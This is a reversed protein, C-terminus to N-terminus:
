HEAEADPPKSEPPRRETERRRPQPEGIDPSQARVAEMKERVAERIFELENLWLGKEKVIKEVNRYLDKPIRM